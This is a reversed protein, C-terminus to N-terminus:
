KRQKIEQQILLTSGVGAQHGSHREAHYKLLLNRYAAAVRNQPYAFAANYKYVQYPLKHTLVLM